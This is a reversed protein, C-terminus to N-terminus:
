VSSSLHGQCWFFPAAQVDEAQELPPLDGGRLRGFPEAHAGPVHAPEPSGELPGPRGPERVPIAPAPRGLPERVLGPIRQM